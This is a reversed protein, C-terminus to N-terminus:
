VAEKKRGYKDVLFIGCDISCGQNCWSKIQSDSLNLAEIAGHSMPCEYRQPKFKNLM